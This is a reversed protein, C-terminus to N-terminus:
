GIEPGNVFNLKSNPSTVSPLSQSIAKLPVVIITFPPSDCPVVSSGERVPFAAAYIALLVNAPTVLTSSFRKTCSECDANAIGVPLSLPQYM